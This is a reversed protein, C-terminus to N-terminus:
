VDIGSEKLLKKARELEKIKRAEIRKKTEEERKLRQKEALELEKRKIEKVKFLIDKVQQEEQKELIAYHFDLKVINERLIKLDEETIETWGENSLRLWSYEEYSYDEYSYNTNHQHLKIIM